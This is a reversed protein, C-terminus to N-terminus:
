MREAMFRSIKKGNGVEMPAKSSNGTSELVAASMVTPPRDLRRESATPVTDPNSRIQRPPPFSPSVIVTSQPFFPSDVTPSETSSPFMSPSRSKSSDVGDPSIEPLKPSSRRVTSIPTSPTSDPLAPRLGSTRNLKFKSVKPKSTSAEAEATAQASTALRDINELPQHTAPSPALVSQNPGSASPKTASVFAPGVNRVEGMKLLELVEKVNEDEAESASEGSEGGVLKDNELRGTRIARRIAQPESSPLLSSGLPTSASLSSADYLSTNRDAKFRSMTPKPRPSSLTAELPVEQSKTHPLREIVFSILSVSRNTGSM